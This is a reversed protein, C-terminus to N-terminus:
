LKASGWYSIVQSEPIDAYIYVDLINTVTDYAGELYVEAATSLAPSFAIMSFAALCLLVSRCKAKM